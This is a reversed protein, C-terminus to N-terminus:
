PENPLQVTRVYTFGTKEYARIARKNDPEPDIICSDIGPHSFLKEKLFRKIVATGVGRGVTDAEGIFLDMGAAHEDVGMAQMEDPYDKLDYGQIYGIPNGHYLIIYAQVPEDGNTCPMYRTTISDLDGPEDADYWEHVHPENLWKAMLPMDSQELARFAIAQEDVAVSNGWTSNKVGDHGTTCGM